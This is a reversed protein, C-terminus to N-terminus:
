EAQKNKLRKKNKKNKNKDQQRIKNFEIKEEKLYFEFM